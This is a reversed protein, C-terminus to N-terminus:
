KLVYVKVYKVGWKCAESYTNFFVDINNGKISSGTDAAIAFGYGDIYLKTGYPIVTPDVAVTSFGAPDRVAKRGSATYTKGVGNVAHYATARATFVKSYALPASGRSVPFISMTGRAIIKNKPQKVITENIITKSVEQGDELVLGYTIQKEGAEGEQVVKSHGHAITNDDKVITEFPISVSETYTKKEVRVISINMGESLLTHRAPSIKDEPNLLIGEANLMSEVTDEASQINKESGDVTVKVNVAKRIVIVDNDSIEEQLSKNVKDKEQLEIRAQALIEEVTKKFTILNKREGDISITIFNLSGSIWITICAIIMASLPIIIKKINTKTDGVSLHSIIM